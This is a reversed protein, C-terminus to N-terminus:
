RGGSRTTGRLKRWRESLSPDDRAGMLPRWVHYFNKRLREMAEENELLRLVRRDDPLM